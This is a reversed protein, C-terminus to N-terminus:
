LEITTLFINFFDSHFFSKIWESFEDMGKVEKKKQLIAFYKILKGYM